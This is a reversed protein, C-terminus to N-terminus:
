SEDESNYALVRCCSSINDSDVSCPKKCNCCKWRYDRLNSGRIQPACIEKVRQYEASMRLQGITPLQGSEVRRLMERVAAELRFAEAMSTYHSAAQRTMPRDSM